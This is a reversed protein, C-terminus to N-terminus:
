EWETGNYVKRIDKTKERMVYFLKAAKDARLACALPEAANAKHLTAPRQSRIFIRNGIQGFAPIPLM